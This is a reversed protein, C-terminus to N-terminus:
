HSYPLTKIYEIINDVDQNKIKVDKHNTLVADESVFNKFLFFHLSISDYKELMSSLPLNDGMYRTPHHCSYCKSQLINKTCDLDNCNSVERENCGILFFVLLIIKTRVISDMNIYNIVQMERIKFNSFFLVFCYKSIYTVSKIFNGLLTCLGIYKNGTQSKYELV